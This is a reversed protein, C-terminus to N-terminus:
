VVQALSKCNSGGEFLSYEISPKSKNLRLFSIHILTDFHAAAQRHPRGVAFAAQHHLLLRITRVPRWSTACNNPPVM